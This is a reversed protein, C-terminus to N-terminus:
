RKYLGILLTKDIIYRSIVKEILMKSSGRPVNLMTNIAYLKFRYRHLSRYPPCPGNYEINGFSNRGQVAGVPVSNEPIFRINSKINWVVWHDWVRRPADPDDVILVLSKANDPIDEIVLPPNVDHGDCTYKRPIMGNNEFAPSKIIM